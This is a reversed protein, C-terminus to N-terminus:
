PPQQKVSEANFAMEFQMRESLSMSAISGERARLVTELESYSPLDKYEDVLKFGGVERVFVQVRGDMQLTRYVALVKLQMHRAM